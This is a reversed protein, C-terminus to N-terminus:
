GAFKPEPLGKVDTQIRFLDGAQPQAERGERDLLFWASTVYLEGMEEGAFIPCTPYQVPMEIRTVLEGEPNFRDVCWGGWVAIWVFGESDVTLGDPDGNEYKRFVSRNAIGGSELDFDYAYVTFVQSDSYYM